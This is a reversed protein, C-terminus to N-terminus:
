SGLHRVFRARNDQRTYAAAEWFSIAVPDDDAVIATLRVAGQARLRREGEHLLATAIRLRRQEPAVALRYFSGRWGDWVAILTGVVAQAESEAILLSRQGTALLRRVGAPTDTASPPSGAATWLSLVPEIDREEGERITLGAGTDADADACVSLAETAATADDAARVRHLFQTLFPVAGRREYLRIAETNTSIVGIVMDEIELERLRAEVADLLKSGVGQGRAEPMVVLTILEALPRSANWSAAFGEGSIVRVFAYGLYRAGGDQAALVFSQPETGFWERELGRRSEWAREFPIERDRLHPSLGTQHDYLARWLPKLDEFRDEPVPVVALESVDPLRASDRGPGVTRGGRRSDGTSTRDGM